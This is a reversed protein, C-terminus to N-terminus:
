NKFLGSWPWQIAAAQQQPAPAPVPKPRTALHKKKPHVPAKAVAKPKVHFSPTAPHRDQVAVFRTRSQFLAAQPLPKGPAPKGVSLSSAQVPTDFYGSLAFAGATAGSAVLLLSLLL